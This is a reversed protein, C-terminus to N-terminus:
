ASIIKKFVTFVQLGLTIVCILIVGFGFVQYTNFIERTYGSLYRESSYIFQVFSSIVIGLILFVSNLGISLKTAFYKGKLLMSVGFCFVLISVLTALLCILAVFLTQRLFITFLIAAHFASYGFLATLSISLIKHTNMNTYWVRWVDDGFRRTRFKLTM